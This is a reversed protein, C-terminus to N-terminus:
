EITQEHDAKTLLKPTSYKNVYISTGRTGDKRIRQILYEIGYPGKRHGLVVGTFETYSVKYGIVDGYDFESYIDYLQKELEEIMTEYTKVKEKVDAIKDIIANSSEIEELTLTKM